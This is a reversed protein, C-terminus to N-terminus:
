RRGSTARVELATLAERLPGLHAEGPTAHAHIERLLRILPSRPPVRVLKGGIIVWGGGDQIVGVVITVGELPIRKFNVHETDVVASRLEQVGTRTDTWLLAFAHDSADLGFYDGIFDVAAVGHSKPANVLPDWGQDSVTIAPDFTTGVNWSAALEVDILYRGDPAKGFVYFTCGVVGTGTCAIQPHFCNADGYSSGPLLPQGSAPGEWTLGKDHSRRYYVRSRGERMDAWAVVVEDGSGACSTVITIVRFKGHEFHTWGDQEPLHNRLSSIGQAVVKVPEFTEGGDTSRLYRIDAEGDPHWFLHLTGDPSIAIDPAFASEVLDTGPPDSGKGKWTNGHDLSRSFRLPGNAGFVVYVNGFHPSSPNNDCQVWQKDDETDVTLTKPQEWTKGGDTSRYVVMGLGTLGTGFKLPEGVLFANGFADFAVTPDTMGDWGQKMPLTSEHWTVGSDATYVPAVGFRYNAPETFKKSAGVIRDPQQVDIAVASESRSQNPASSTAQHTSSPFLGYTITAIGTGSVHTKPPPPPM